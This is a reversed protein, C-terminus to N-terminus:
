SHGKTLAPPFFNPYQPLEINFNKKLIEHYQEVSEIEISFLDKKDREKYTRNFLIKRRNEFPMTVVVNKVFVMEPNNYNYYHMANFDEAFYATLEFAYLDVWENEIQTMLKYGYKDDKRLMFAEDFQHFAKELVFPIPEILGNSGFGTDCLWKQGEVEVLLAKHALLPVKDVPTGYLVRAMLREVKFGMETLVLALLENIQSCGGGRKSHVLKKVLFDPDLQPPIGLHPDLMDFPIHFCQQRHIAKLTESNPTASGQYAIRNFYDTLPIAM